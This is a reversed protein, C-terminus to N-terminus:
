VIANVCQYIIICISLILPAMLLAGLTGFLMAFFKGIFGYDKWLDHAACFMVLSMGTTFIILAIIGIATFFWEIIM